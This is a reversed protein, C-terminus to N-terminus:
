YVYQAAKLPAPRATPFYPWHRMTLVSPVESIARKIVQWSLIWTDMLYGSVYGGFIEFTDSYRSVYGFYGFVYGSVGMGM